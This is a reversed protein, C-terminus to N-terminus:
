LHVVELQLRQHEKQEGAVIIWLLEFEFFFHLEM